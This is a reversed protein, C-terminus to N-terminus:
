GIFFRCPAAEGYGNSKELKELLEKQRTRGESALANGTLSGGGPLSVGDGWRGRVMGIAEMVVAYAYDQVWPSTIINKLPLEVYCEIVGM